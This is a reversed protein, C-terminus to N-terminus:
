DLRQAGQETETHLIREKREKKFSDAIFTPPTFIFRMEDIQELEKKLAEYVYISFCSAAVSVKTSKKLTQKLDDGFLKDVNSIVEM